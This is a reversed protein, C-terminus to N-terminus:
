PCGGEHRRAHRPRRSATRVRSRDLEFADTAIEPTEAAVVAVYDGIFRVKNDLVYMDYPSPEPWSQGATTYPVRKVDHFSIAAHVGPATAARSTDISAIRAHAHPSTLIKAHLMGRLFIDDTFTGRGTVLKAADVKRARTGVMQLQAPM